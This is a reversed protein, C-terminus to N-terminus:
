DESEKTGGLVYIKHSRKRVDKKTNKEAACKKQTMSKKGKKGKSRGIHLGATGPKALPRKRKL